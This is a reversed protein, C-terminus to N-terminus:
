NKSNMFVEIADALDNRDYAYSIRNKLNIAIPTGKEQYVKSFLVGL